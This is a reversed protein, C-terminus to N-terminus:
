DDGPTAPRIVRTNIPEDVMGPASIPYSSTLFTVTVETFGPLEESERVTVPAGALYGPVRDGGITLGDRDIVIQKTMEIAHSM